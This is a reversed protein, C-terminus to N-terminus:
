SLAEKLKYALYKAADEAGIEDPESDVPEVAPASPTPKSFPKDADREALAALSYNQQQSLVNKGGDTPGYGVKKRGEDPSLITGKVGMAATEMLTKQDMRLMGDVDLYTRYGDGIELGDDLCTEISEILIQLCDSYYQLNQAEINDSTPMSGVGVKYAPVHYCSCIKEDSWKLQEILQADTSSMRMPQYSLGDGGVLIKGSKEGSYGEEMKKKLRKATEESISGPASLMGGPNAGNAFFYKSNNIIELGMSTSALAAYLPSMGVLPHYLCNERDHIIDRAPFTNDVTVGSLDDRNVTYYVDGVESVLPKVKVPDLIHLAAVKGSLSDRAKFIYTNGFNKKSLIWQVIFQLTTQYNNPKKLLELAPHSATEWVGSVERQVGLKLKGIDNAILTTCAFVTPHTLSNEGNEYPSNSQWAGPTWDFVRTWGRDDPSSLAKKQARSALWSSPSFISM